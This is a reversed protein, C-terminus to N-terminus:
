AEQLRRRMEDEARVLEEQTNITYSECPQLVDLAHVDKGVSLLYRPADSVYYEGTVPSPGMQKLFEALDAADFVYTSLNVETIVKEEPTADKEEVIKLFRKDADRVIRGLGFPNDAYGSGLLCSCHLLGQEAVLRAVSSSQTLPSDGTVVVVPGDHAEIQPLCSKVAHGTGLPEGQDVFEVDSFGALSARVDDAKYGVVVLIRAIGAEKLADIVYHIMPRGLVPVLVKPLDSKMRTGKGAAMVIAVPPKM